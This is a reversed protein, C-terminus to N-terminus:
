RERGSIRAYDTAVSAIAPSPSEAGRTKAESAAQYCETARFPKGRGRPPAATPTAADRPASAGVAQSGLAAAGLLTPSGALFQRRKMPVSEKPNVSATM